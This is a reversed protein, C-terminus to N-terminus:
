TSRRWIMFSNYGRKGLTPIRVRFSGLSPTQKLNSGMLENGPSYYACGGQVEGEKCSACQFHGFYQLCCFGWPVLRVAPWLYRHAWTCVLAWSSKICAASYVLYLWILAKTSYIYGASPLNNHIDNGSTPFKRSLLSKCIPPFFIKASFVKVSQKSTGGFSVM